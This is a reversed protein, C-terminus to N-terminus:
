EYEEGDDFVSKRTEEEADDWLSYTARANGGGSVGPDTINSPLPNSTQLLSDTAINVVFTQPQQYIQKM